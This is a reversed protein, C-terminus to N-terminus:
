YLILGSKRRLPCITNFNLQFNTHKLKRQFWSDVAQIILKFEDELYISNFFFRINFLYKRFYRKLKEWGLLAM